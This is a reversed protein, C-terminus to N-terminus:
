DSKIWPIGCQSSPMMLVVMILHFLNPAPPQCQVQPCQCQFPKLHDSTVRSIDKIPWGIVCQDQFGFFLGTVERASTLVPSKFALGTERVHASVCLRTCLYVCVCACVCVSVCVRVCVRACVCVSVHVSAHASVCLCTCLRVCVRACICLRVYVRACVCLCTCLRTRPGLAKVSDM